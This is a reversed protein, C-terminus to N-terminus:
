KANESYLVGLVTQGVAKLASQDIIDMNDQHTHWYSGFGTRTRSDNHIIDITKIGAISNIYYHDDTLPNAREYLFRDSYGLRAAVDWVDRMVQPAFAMSTGEMRFVADQAGVMDLLIGFAARYGSKHKNKAWYQSGLCYSDQAESIGYDETDFLIIDVGLPIPNQALVRAVELLVGVGSGGDNAGLIPQDINITDQDAFPRTDWHACLLIRRKADPNFAAIINKMGLITGDYAEVEAEQVLVEHAYEALQTQLWDACSDHAASNPVRPGFAVQNAVQQYAFEANFEPVNIVPRSTDKAQDDADPSCSVLSTILLSFALYRMFDM